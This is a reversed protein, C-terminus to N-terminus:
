QIVQLIDSGPLLQYSWTESLTNEGEHLFARLSLPRNAAPRAHTSLSRNM